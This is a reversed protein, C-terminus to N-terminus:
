LKGVEKRLYLAKPYLSKRSMPCNIREEYIKGEPNRYYYAYKIKKEVMGTKMKGLIYPKLQYQLHIHTYM